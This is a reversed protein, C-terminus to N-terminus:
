KRGNMCERHKLLSLCEFMCLHRLPYGVLSLFDGCIYWLRPRVSLSSVYRPTRINWTRSARRSCVWCSYVCCAWYVSRNCWIHLSRITLSRPQCVCRSYVCYSVTIGSTCGTFTAPRLYVCYPWQTTSITTMLLQIKFLLIRIWICDGFPFSNNKRTLTTATAHLMLDAPQM